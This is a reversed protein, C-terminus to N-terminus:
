SGEDQDGGKGEFECCRRRRRRDKLREESPAAGWKKKVRPGPNASGAMLRGPPYGENVQGATLAEIRGLQRRHQAGGAAQPGGGKSSTLTCIREGPSSCYYIDEGAAPPAAGRRRGAPRRKSNETTGPLGGSTFKLIRGAPFFWLCAAGM